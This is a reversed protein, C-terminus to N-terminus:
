QKILLHYERKKILIYGTFCISALIVILFRVGLFESLAGSFVVPFITAITVLFWFNGFIRGRLGGPVISQLFTQSPIVVGVFSLGLVVILVFSFIVLWVNSLFLFIFSLLFLCLSISFLSYEIVFKKRVKRKKLLKPIVLAGIFAGIGAPMVIFLGGKDSHIKLIEEAFLPINVMVIALGVQMSLLLLFPFLVLRNGIIFDYGYKIRKFFAFLLDDFREFNVRGFKMGPLFSVSVFALFLFLSCLILTYQFGLLRNLLGATGFGLVLSSQQTLFFLSNAEPLDDEKVLSPLSASESPVYFQNLLSYTMAVGYILFIKYEFVFAYVFITLFQLFNTIMLVRRRDAIDVVASAFPGVLIAPLSYSVWLFSTAISSATLSFLRTLLLFNMINIALQSLIQSIWLFVFNRNRLLFSYDSM